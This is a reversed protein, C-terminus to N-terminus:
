IYYLTNCLSSHEIVIDKLNFSSSAKSLQMPVFSGPPNYQGEYVRFVSAKLISIVHEYSDWDAIHSPSVLGITDGYHLRDAIM